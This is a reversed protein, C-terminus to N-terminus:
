NTQLCCEHWTRGKADCQQENEQDDGAGQGRDRHAAPEADLGQCARDLIFVLGREREASGRAPDALAAHIEFAGGALVQDEPVLGQQLAEVAREVVGVGREGGQVAAVEADGRRGM